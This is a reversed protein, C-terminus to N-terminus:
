LRAEVKYNLWSKLPSLLQNKASEIGAFFAKETIAEIGAHSDQIEVVRKCAEDLEEKYEEILQDKQELKEILLGKDLASYDM